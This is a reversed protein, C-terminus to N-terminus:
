AGSSLLSVLLVVPFFLPTSVVGYPLLFLSMVVACLFVSMCRSADGLHLTGRGGGCGSVSALVDSHTSLNNTTQWGEGGGVGTRMSTNLLNPLRM